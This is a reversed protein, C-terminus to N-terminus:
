EQGLYWVRELILPDGIGLESLSWTLILQPYTQLNEMHSRM